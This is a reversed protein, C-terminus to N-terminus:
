LRNGIVKTSSVQKNPRTEKSPSGIPSERKNLCTEKSLWGVGGKKECRLHGNSNHTKTKAKRCCETEESPWERESLV